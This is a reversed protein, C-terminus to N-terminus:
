ASAGSGNKAQMAQLLMLSNLASGQSSAFAQDQQATAMAANTLPGQAVGLANLGQTLLGQRAQDTMAAAEADIQALANQQATSDGMGAYRQRISAKQQDQWTKIDFATSAPIQGSQYQALLSSAANQAPQGTAALQKALTNGRSAQVIQSGVNLGLGAAQLPNKKVADLVRQTISPDTSPAAGDPAITQDPVPDPVDTPPTGTYASYDTAPVFDTGGVGLGGAAGADTPFAAGGIDGAATLADVGGAGAVDTAASVATPADFSGAADAVGDAEAVDAGAVDAAGLTGGGGGFIGASDAGMPGLTAVDGGFGAAGAGAGGAVATAFIEFAQQASMSDGYSVSATPKGSTDYVQTGDPLNRGDNFPTNIVNGSADYYIPQGSDTVSQYYPNYSQGPIDFSAGDPTRAVEAATTGGPQLPAGAPNFQNGAADFGATAGAGTAAGTDSIAGAAATDDVPDPM